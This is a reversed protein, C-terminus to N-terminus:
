EAIDGANRTTMGWFATESIDKRLFRVSGDFMAVQLGSAYPSQLQHVDCEPFLPKAQFTVGARSPRSVPPFGSTAPVVDFYGRDAFSARREGVVIRLFNSISGQGISFLHFEAPNGFSVSPLYCFREAAFITNSLGDQFGSTINPETETASVNAAYSSIYERRVWSHCM